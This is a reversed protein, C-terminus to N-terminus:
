SSIVGKGLRNEFKSNAIKKRYGLRIITLTIYAATKLFSNQNDLVTPLFCIVEQANTSHTSLKVRWLMGDQLIRTM